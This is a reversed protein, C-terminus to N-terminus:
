GADEVNIRRYAAEIFSYLAFAILGIGMLALLLGGAPLSQVYELAERSGADGSGGALARRAFLFALVLFISGRAVLGTRAIPHIMRMKTADAEIHKEYGKRWAKIFHSVGAGALVCALITSTLSAGVFGAMTDAFGGGEGGGSAGRTRSFTYFALALYTIGSVALGGRIALGKADTGHDDTDFGSQVFRWAAYFVLGAVLAYAIVGGFGSSLLTELADRSGMAEGSGIAALAAFFGIVLYIVGRSAYGARAMPRFWERAAQM